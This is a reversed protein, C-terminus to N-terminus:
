KFCLYAYLLINKHTPRIMDGNQQMKKVNGWCMQATRGDRPHWAIKGVPRLLKPAGHFGLSVEYHSLETILHQYLAELFSYAVLCSNARWRFKSSPAILYAPLCALLWISIYISLDFALYISLNWISLYISLYISTHAQSSVDVRTRFVIM